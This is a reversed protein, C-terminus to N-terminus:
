LHDFSMVGNGILMGKFNISFAGTNEANYKDILVALDPIYKGAYSEGALWFGNKVYDPFKRFFDILARM